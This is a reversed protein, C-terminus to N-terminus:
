LHWTRSSVRSFFARDELSTKGRHGPVAPCDFRALLCPELLDVNVAHEMSFAFEVGAVQALRAVESTSDRRSGYPYSMAYPKQGIWDSLIALSTEIQRSIQRAPLLGLPYHQHAHTGILDRRGMEAIQATTLYLSRSIGREEGAFTDGFITELLRDRPDFPLIFNLLYKIRAM